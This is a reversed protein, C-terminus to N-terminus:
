AAPGPLFETLGGRLWLRQLPARAKPAKPCPSSQVAGPHLGRQSRLTLRSGGDSPAGRAKSSHSIFRAGIGYKSRYYDKTFDDCDAIILRRGWVSVGRGVTLDCDKYFDETVAGTKLSDLIYRKGQKSSDFVNLVTRDTLQGPQKMRVSHKPLKSRRLFKAATDRGSNPPIIELIEITDDALFYRLVLERLDGFMSESDDWFCKFRLVVGEHDLFQKLTDRREYPRLPTMSKEIQERLTSYPDAPITAPNNLRIGLKSFFNKTFTDCNTVTFTRSYLVIQKDLNFHFINYFQDDNPPPLPVRQRRIFTGQPIGSNKYEPEVVQITDDELYFYINFKRIRYTQKDFALWSPLAGGQGKPYVSYKPKIKQGDLPEGGIGPKECSVLMPIGNSYDFHQSKHFKEKGLQKNPSNGPLFPLAM